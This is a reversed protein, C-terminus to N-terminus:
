FQNAATLVEGSGAPDPIDLVTEKEENTENLNWM